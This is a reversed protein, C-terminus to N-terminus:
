RRSSQLDVDNNALLSIVLLCSELRHYGEGHRTVFVNSAADAIEVLGKLVSGIHHVHNTCSPSLLLSGLAVTLAGDVGRFDSRLHHPQSVFKPM